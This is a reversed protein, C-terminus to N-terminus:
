DFFHKVKNLWSDAKPSHKHDKNKLSADLKQLLEKQESNLNVPTEVLIKCLLDGVHSNRVTRVGKGRLRFLKGTQSEAPIKLKIKGSLTPVEAEGGLAATTFSVPIECYLDAGDRHFIEHEKVRVQVYLDGAQGNNPGAEGEGQLRVRDGTDVGAPIKVSLTKEEEVVGQGHCSNCHDKIITGQGHCAPCTQQISFFGQQMRVQGHGGCTTCSVPKAGDKAGSGNCKKCSVGTRYRIKSTTGSAAEELTLDLSYRLDAGQSRATAGRGRSSGGGFIDEFGSGGFIDGFIDNFNQSAHRRAGAAASPDVGAHGHMDYAQRKSKDSLIEYAENVTKFKDEASKDGQNKDPHYKMALKRYAKKIEADSAGKSIGLTKYYDEKEM